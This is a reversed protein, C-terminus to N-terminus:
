VDFGAGVLARKQALSLDSHGSALRIARQVGERAAHLATARQELELAMEPSIFSGRLRERTEPKIGSIEVPVRVLALRTRESALEIAPATKSDARAMRAIEMDHMADAASAEPIQVADAALQQYESELRRVTDAKTRLNALAVAAAEATKQLKGADSLMPDAQTAEKTEHLRRLIGVASSAAEPDILRYAEQTHERDTPLGVPWTAVINSGSRMFQVPTSNEITM